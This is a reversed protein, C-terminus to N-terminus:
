YIKVSRTDVWNKTFARRWIDWKVTLFTVTRASVQYTYKGTIVMDFLTHWEFCQVEYLIYKYTGVFALSVLM